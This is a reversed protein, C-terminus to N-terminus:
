EYAGGQGTWYRSDTMRYCAAETLHRKEIRDSGDLDAITRAVKIIRHYARASLDMSRFLGALMQEEAEGLPCFRRIDAPGMDANFRLKTGAFRKKQRDRAALVRARISASSENDGAKEQALDGISLRPAEVCIDIRDIIPGSVRGLYKRIEHDSCRCRNRDPYYGCPCPNMAALLQFDAPYTCSGTTRALQVRKDELPQRLLDLTARSFEPLEDLFLVGRHALSILGPRPSAGGGCLAAETITHHPSLFPRRTILAERANLLGSVSYVASVELSEEESLPPLIGPMRKAIMSKGAGPPGILLLHHFGAAAVEAARKVAIQGNIDAFDDGTMEGGTRFLADLDIVAPPIVADRDSAPTSLYAIAEQVSHVGIVRMGRVVAGEDANDAPLICTRIGSELAKTVIPLTGRIRNIEGDLGLEGLILVDRISAESIEGMACLLGVAIPLDVSVGEKRIAAPSLNVTIRAPPMRYGANKLAVRVREGAEKTDGSVYGVMVFSPLGDSVDVEVKMLYSTVGRVGGSLVAAYM